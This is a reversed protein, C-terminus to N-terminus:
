AAQFDRVFVCSGFFIGGTKRCVAAATNICPKIIIVFLFGITLPSKTANCLFIAKIKLLSGCMTSGCM